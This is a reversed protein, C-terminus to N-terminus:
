SFLAAKLRKLASEQEIAAKHTELDALDADIERMRAALGDREVKARLLAVDGRAAAAAKDLAAVQKELRAREARDAELLAEFLVADLAPVATPGALTHIAAERRRLPPRPAKPRSKHPARTTESPPATPPPAAPATALAPDQTQPASDPRSRAAGPEGGPEGGPAGRPEGRAEAAPEPAPKPAAAAKESAPARAPAPIPDASLPPPLQEAALGLPGIPDRRHRLRLEANHARFARDEISRWSGEVLDVIVRRMAIRGDTAGVLLHENVAFVGGRRASLRWRPAGESVEPPEESAPRAAAWGRLLVLTEPAIDFDAAAEAILREHLARMAAADPRGQDIAALNQVLRTRFADVEDLAEDQSEQATFRLHLWLGLAVMVGLFGGVGVAPGFAWGLGAAGLAIVATAAVGWLKLRRVAALRAGLDILREADLADILRRDPRHFFDWRPRAAEPLAAREAVDCRIRDAGVGDSVFIQHLFPDVARERPKQRRAAEFWAEVSPPAPAAKGPAPPPTASGDRPASPAAGESTERKAMDGGSDRDAAGSAKARRM